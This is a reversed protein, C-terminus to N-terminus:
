VALRYYPLTVTPRFGLKQALYYSGQNELRCAWVPELNHELCYDILASCVALACGKGRHNEATEIGIELQGATRCSAFSTAAAEGDSVLTYGIGEAAFHEEDRWFFRPVVAGSQALFQEKTTRMIIGDPRPLKAKADMYAERNFCFNVRTNREIARSHNELSSIGSNILSSNHISLISDLIPTWEAAPDSQLWEASQRMGALNTMYDHLGQTFAENGAEGFLLSMGYSHVVYFARPNHVADVYVSGPVLQELVARAFMTNINVHDLLPLVKFYDKSELQLM